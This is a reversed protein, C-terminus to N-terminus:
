SENEEQEQQHEHECEYEHEHCHQRGSKVSNSSGFVIFISKGSGVFTRDNLRVRVGSSPSHGGNGGGEDQDCELDPFSTCSRLSAASPYSHVFTTLEFKCEVDIRIVRMFWGLYKTGLFYTM